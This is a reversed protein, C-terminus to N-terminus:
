AAQKLTLRYIQYQQWIVFAFLSVLGFGMVKVYNELKTNNIGWLEMKTEHNTKLAGLGKVLLAYNGYILDLKKNLDTNMEAFEKKEVFKEKLEVKLNEEHHVIKDEINKQIKQIEHFMNTISDYFLNLQNKVNELNVLNVDFRLSTYKLNLKELDASHRKLEAEIAQKCSQLHTLENFLETKLRRLEAARANIDQLAERNVIQLVLFTNTNVTDQLDRVLRNVKANENNVHVFMKDFNAIIDTKFRNFSAVNISPSMSSSNNKQNMAQLDYVYVIIFFVCYHKM